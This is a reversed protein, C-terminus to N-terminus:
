EVVISELQYDDVCEIGFCRGISRSLMGFVVFILIEADWNLFSESVSM